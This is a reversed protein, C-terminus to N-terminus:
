ALNMQRMLAAFRPDDHVPQWRADYKVLTMRVDRVAYGQALAALAGAKSGLGAM